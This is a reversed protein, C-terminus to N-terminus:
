HCLIFLLVINKCSYCERDDYQHLLLLHQAKNHVNEGSCVEVFKNLRGGKDTLSKHPDPCTVHALFIKLTGQGM